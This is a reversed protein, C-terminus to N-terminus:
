FNKPPDPTAASEPHSGIEPQQHNMMQTRRELNESDSRISHSILFSTKRTASKQPKKRFSVSLLVTSTVKWVAKRGHVFCNRVRMSGRIEQSMMLRSTFFQIQSNTSQHVSNRTLPSAKTTAKQPLRSRLFGDDHGDMTPFSKDVQLPFFPVSAPWWLESDFCWCKVAKGGSSQVFTFSREVCRRTWSETWACVWRRPANSFDWGNCLERNTWPEFHHAARFEWCKAVCSVSSSAIQVQKM